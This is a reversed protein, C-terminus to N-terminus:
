KYHDNKGIVATKIGCWKRGVIGVEAIKPSPILKCM